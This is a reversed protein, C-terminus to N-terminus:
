GLIVALSEPRLFDKKVAKEIARNYSITTEDGCYQSFVAKKEQKGRPPLWPYPM